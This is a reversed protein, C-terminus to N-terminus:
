RQGNVNDYRFGTWRPCQLTPVVGTRKEDGTGM